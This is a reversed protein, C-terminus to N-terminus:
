TKYKLGFKEPRLGTYFDDLFLIKAEFLRLFQCISYFLEFEADELLYSRWKSWLKMVTESIQTLHTLFSLHM